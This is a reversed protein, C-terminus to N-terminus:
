SHLVMCKRLMEARRYAEAFFKRQGMERYAPINRCPARVRKVELVLPGEYGAARLDRMRSEWPLCGDFPLFHADDTTSPPGDKTKGDNDHLHVTLIRGGYRALPDYDPTYAFNHGSDWCVGFVEPDIGDVMAEFLDPMEMNEVALKVGLRKAVSGVRAFRSLALDSVRGPYYGCNPHLVMVPIEARAAETLAAALLACYGDGAPGEEWVANIGGPLGPRPFFPGHVSPVFLGLRRAYAAEEALSEPRDADFTLAVASFGAALADAIGAKVPEDFAAPLAIGLPCLADAM